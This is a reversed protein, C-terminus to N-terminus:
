SSVKARGSAATSYQHLAQQSFRYTLLLLQALLEHAPIRIDADSKRHTEAFWPISDLQLTRQWTWLRLTKTPPEQLMGQMPLKTCSHRAVHAHALM